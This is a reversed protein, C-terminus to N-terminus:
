FDSNSGLIPLANGTHGDVVSREPAVVQMRSIRVVELHAFRVLEPLAEAVDAGLPGRWRPVPRVENGDDLAFRLIEFRSRESSREGLGKQVGSPQATARLLPCSFIQAHIM